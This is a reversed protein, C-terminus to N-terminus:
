VAEWTCIHQIDNKVPFVIQYQSRLLSWVVKSESSCDSIALSNKSAVVLFGKIKFFSRINRFSNKSAVVLFFAKVNYMMTRTHHFVYNCSLFNSVAARLSWDSPDVTDFNPYWVWLAFWCNRKSDFTLYGGIHQLRVHWVHYESYWETSVLNIM